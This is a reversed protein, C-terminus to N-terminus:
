LDKIESQYNKFDEVTLGTAELDAPTVDQLFQLHTKLFSSVLIKGSKAFFLDKRKKWTILFAMHHKWTEIKEHHGSTLVAPVTQDGWLQPKTFQPAELLGQHFSDQIVSHEDGLVGPVFRSIAETLALAALEGGSLVFDGMSIEMDIHHNMIRQDIGGYRGSLLVLHDYKMLDLVVTQTLPKGQPSLYIRLTSDASFIPDKYIDNFCKDAIDPRLIMGDGGGYPSDDVSKYKNDTYNRLDIVNFQLLKKAAAKKLLADELYNEILNPFLTIYSFKMATVTM